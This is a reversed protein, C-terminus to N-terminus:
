DTNNSSDGAGVTAKPRGKSKDDNKSELQQMAARQMAAPTLKGLFARDLFQEQALPDNLNFNKIEREDLPHETVGTKKIAMTQYLVDLMLYACAGNLIDEEGAKIMWLGPANRSVVKINDETFVYTEDEPDLWQWYLDEDDLNHVRVTDHPRFRKHVREMFNKTNDVHTIGRLQDPKVQSQEIRPM